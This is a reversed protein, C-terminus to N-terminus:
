LLRGRRELEAVYEQVKQIHDLIDNATDTFRDIKAELHRIKEPYAKDISEGLVVAYTLPVKDTKFTEIGEEGVARITLELHSKNLDEKTITIKGDQVQKFPKGNVSYEVKKNVVDKIFNTNVDGVINHNVLGTNNVIHIYSDRLIFEM